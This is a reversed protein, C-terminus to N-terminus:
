QGTFLKITKYNQLFIPIHYVVAHMYSTVNSRKYSVRKYSVRKDKIMWEKAKHFYDNIMETSPNRCTVTSYIEGFKEWKTKVVEVTDPKIIGNLKTPLENLREKRTQGWFVLLDYQGSGKGDGNTKEGCTL